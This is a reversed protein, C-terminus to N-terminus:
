NSSQAGSQYQEILGSVVAGYPVSTTGYMEEAVDDLRAQEDASVAISKERM